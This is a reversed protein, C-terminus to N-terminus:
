TNLGVFSDSPFGRIIPMYHRVPVPSALSLDFFWEYRPFEAEIFDRKRSQRARDYSLGIVWIGNSFIRRRCSSFLQYQAFLYENQIYFGIQISFADILSSHQEPERDVYKGFQTFHLITAYNQIRVIGIMKQKIM